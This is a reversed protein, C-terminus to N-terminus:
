AKKNRHITYPILKQSTVILDSSGPVFSWEKGEDGLLLVEDGEKVYEVKEGVSVVIHRKGAASVQPVHILGIKDQTVVRVIVFEGHAKYTVTEAM